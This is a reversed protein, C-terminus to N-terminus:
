GYRCPAGHLVWAPRALAAAESAVSRNRHKVVAKWDCQRLVPVVGDASHLYFGRIATDAALGGRHVDPYDFANQLELGFAMAAARPVATIAAARAARAVSPTAARAAGPENAALSKGEDTALLPSADTYAATVM